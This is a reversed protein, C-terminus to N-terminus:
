PFIGPLNLGPPLGPLGLAKAVGERIQTQTITGKTSYPLDLTLRESGVGVTGRLTFTIDKGSVADKAIVSAGSWNVRLPIDLGAEQNGGVEMKGTYSVDALETGSELTVKGTVSKIMFGFRNPNKLKGHLSLNLGTTEIGTVKVTEAEFTPPVPKQCGTTTGMAVLAVASFLKASDLRRLSHAFASRGLRTPSFLTRRFLANM